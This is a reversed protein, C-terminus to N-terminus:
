VSSIASSNPAHANVKALKTAVTICRGHGVLGYKTQTPEEESQLMHKHQGTGAVHMVPQDQFLGITDIRKQVRAPLCLLM